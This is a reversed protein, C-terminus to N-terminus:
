IWKRPWAFAWRWSRCYYSITFFSDTPFLLGPYMFWLQPKLDALRATPVVGHARGARQGLTCWCGAVVSHCAGSYSKGSIVRGSEPEADRMWRWSDWPGWSVGVVTYYLQPWEFDQWWCEGGCGAGECGKWWINESSLDMMSRLGLTRCQERLVGVPTLFFMFYFWSSKATM